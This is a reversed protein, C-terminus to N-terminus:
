GVNLDFRTADNYTVYTEQQGHNGLNLQSPWKTTPTTQVFLTYDGSAYLVGSREPRNMTINTMYENGIDPPSPQARAVSLCLVVFTASTLKCFM